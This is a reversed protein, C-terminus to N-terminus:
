AEGGRLAVPDPLAKHPEGLATLRRDLAVALYEFWEAWDPSNEKARYGYYLPATKSWAILVQSALLDDLLDLKAMGRKYLLGMMEFYTGVVDLTTVEDLTAEAEFAAFSAFTWGQIQWYARQFAPDYFPAYLRLVMEEQRQKALSRLQLLGIIIGVILAISGVSALIQPVDM